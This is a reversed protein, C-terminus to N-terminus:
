RSRSHNPKGDGHVDVRKANRKPITKNNKRQEALKRARGSSYQKRNSGM